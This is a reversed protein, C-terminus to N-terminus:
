PLSAIRSALDDLEARITRLHGREDALVASFAERYLSSIDDRKPEVQDERLLHLLREAADLRGWLYDSERRERKFFAGFHSMKIGALKRAGEDSLMKSDDPSVRVVDIEYLEGIDSLTRIPYVLADWLPFGLFRVLLRDRTWDDWDETASRLTDQIREGFDGLRDSLSISLGAEVDNLEEMHARAFGDPDVDDPAELLEDIHERPFLRQVAEVLDESAAETAGQVAALLAYLDGKLRNLDARVPHPPGGGPWKALADYLNNVGQIVFRIRRMGYGLDFTRLFRKQDETLEGGETWALIETKRAAWAQVVDSVFFAHQSRDPYGCMRAAVQSFREVVGFLKLRAYALYQLGTREAAREHMDDRWRDYSGELGTADAASRLATVETEVEPWARAVMDNVRRVRRNFDRVSLLDDLIPEERPLPSLGGWIVQFWGPAKDPPPRFKHGPDPQIYLLKRTVQTAAPKAIIARIAHEFPFNDLVGGDLFATSRPDQDGDLYVDFFERVFHDEDWGPRAPVDGIRIPPFAGPFSSTARAAFALAPDHEPGFQDVTGDLRFALVHRHETEGVYPPENVPLMRYHGYFDTTTVFLELAHSEPMLTAQEFPRTTDMDRLAGEIWEFMRDGRLPPKSLRHAVAWAVVKLPLWPLFRWGMLQGIDGRQMWLDRLSQQSLDHALAKALIIGNIGGASSGAITDVVVRTKVGQRAARERLADFYAHETDSSEAFPNRTPDDDFARSALVLKHIEKTVGHMYIALSVGGYCVLALRLEATDTAQPDESPSPETRPSTSTELSSAM